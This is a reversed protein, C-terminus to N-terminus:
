GDPSSWETPVAAWGHRSVSRHRVAEPVQLSIRNDRDATGVGLPSDGVPVGTSDHLFFQGTVTTGSFPSTVLGSLVPRAPDHLDTRLNAPVDPAGLNLGGQCFSDQDHHPPPTPQGAKLPPPADQVNGLSIKWHASDTGNDGQGIFLYFQYPYNPYNLCATRSQGNKEEDFTVTIPGNPMRAYNQILSQANVADAQGVAQGDHCRRQLRPDGQHVPRGRGRQRRDGRRAGDRRQRIAKRLHHRSSAHSLEAWQM